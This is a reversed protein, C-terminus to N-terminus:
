TAKKGLVESLARQAVIASKAGFGFRTQLSLDTRILTRLAEDGDQWGFLAGAVIWSHQYLWFRVLRRSPTSTAAVRREVMRARAPLSLEDAPERPAGSVVFDPERFKKEPSAPPKTEETSAPETKTNTPEAPATEAKEPSTQSEDESRNARLRDRLLVVRTGEYPSRNEPLGQEPYDPNRRLTVAVTPAGNDVVRTGPAPRQVVVTNAAYGQTEGDVRWAFGGDQLIGKAFVYAQRRVDPVVLVNPREDPKAPTAPPTEDIQKSGAAFTLSAAALLWIVVLAALRPLLMTLRAAM